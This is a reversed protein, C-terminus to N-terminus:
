NEPIKYGKEEKPYPLTMSIDFNIRNATKESLNGSVIKVSAGAEKESEVALDFHVVCSDGVNGLVPSVRYGKGKSQDIAEQVGEAIQTLTNSIFEKLEM